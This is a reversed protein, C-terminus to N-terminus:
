FLQPVSSNITFNALYSSWPVNTRQERGELGKNQLSSVSVRNEPLNADTDAEWLSIPQQILVSVTMMIAKDTGSRWNWDLKLCSSMIQQPQIHPLSHSTGLNTRSRHWILFSIKWISQSNGEHWRITSCFTETEETRNRNETHLHCDKGLDVWLINLKKNPLKIMPSLVRKCQWFDRQKDGKLGAAFGSGSRSFM